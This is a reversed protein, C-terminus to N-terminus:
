PKRVQLSVIDNLSHVIGNSDKIYSSGNKPTIKFGILKLLELNVGKKEALEFYDTGFNFRESKVDSFSEDRRGVLMVACLTIGSLRELDVFVYKLFSMLANLVTYAQDDAWNRHQSDLKLHAWKGEDAYKQVKSEYNSHAFGNRIHLLEKIAKWRYDSEDPVITAQSLYIKIKELAPNFSDAVSDQGVSRLASSSIAELSFASALVSQRIYLNSFSRNHTKCAQDALWAFRFADDLLSYTNSKAGVM